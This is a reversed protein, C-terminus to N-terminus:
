SILVSGILANDLLVNHVLSPPGSAAAAVAAPEEDPPPEWPAWQPGSVALANTMSGNTTFTSLAYNKVYTRGSAGPFAMILASRRYAMPNMMVKRIDQFALVSGFMACFAVDAQASNVSGQDCCIRITSGTDDDYAGSGDNNTGFTSTTLLPPQGPQGMRGHYVAVLSGASGGQNVTVAIWRWRGTDNTPAPTDSTIYDLDTTARNWLFRLNAGSTRLSWDATTTGKSFIARGSTIATYNRTLLIITMATLNDVASGSGFDVRASTQIGFRMAPVPM